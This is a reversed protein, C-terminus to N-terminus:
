PIPFHWETSASNVRWWSVNASILPKKLNSPRQIQVPETTKEDPLLIAEIVKGDAMKSGKKAFAMVGLRSTLELERVFRQIQRGNADCGFIEARPFQDGYERVWQFVARSRIESGWDDLIFAPFLLTESGQLVFAFRLYISDAGATEPRDNLLLLATRGDRNFLKGHIHINIPKMFIAGRDLM